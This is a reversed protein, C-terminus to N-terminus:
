HSGHIRCYSTLEPGAEPVGFGARDQRIELRGLVLLSLGVEERGAITLDCWGNIRTGLEHGCHVREVIPKAAVRHPKSARRHCAVASIDRHPGRLLFPTGRPVRSAPVLNRGNTGSAM